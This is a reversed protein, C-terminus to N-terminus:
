CMTRTIHRSFSLFTLQIYTIYASIYAPCRTIVLSSRKLSFYKYIQIYYINLNYIINVRFNSVHVKLSFCCYINSFLSEDFRHSDKIFQVTCILIKGNANAKNDFADSGYLLVSILKDQSM